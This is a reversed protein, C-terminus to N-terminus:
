KKLPTHYGIRTHAETDKGKDNKPWVVGEATLLRKWKWSVIYFPIFNNILLHVHLNGSKEGLEKKWVYTCNATRRIYDIFHDFAKLFQKHTVGSPATLTLFAVKMSFEKDKKNKFKRVGSYYCLKSCYRKVRRSQSENLNRVNKNQESDELIEGTIQTTTLIKLHIITYEGQFTKL